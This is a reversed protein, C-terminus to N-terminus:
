NFNNKRSNNNVLFFAFVINATLLGYIVTNGISIFILTIFFASTIKNNAYIKKFLLILGILGILGVAGFWNGLEADFFVDHTGGFLITFLNSEKIYNLFISYKIYGSSETSIFNELFSDKMRFAILLICIYILISKKNMKYSFIQRFNIQKVFHYILFGGIATRSFTLLLCLITFFNILIYFSKNKTTLSSYCTDYIFFYLLVTMGLLNPNHLLGGARVNGRDVFISLLDKGTTFNFFNGWDFVYAYESFYWTNRFSVFWNFNYSILIQTSILYLLILVAFYMIVKKNLKLEPFPHRFLLILIILFRILEGPAKIATLFIGPLILFFIFITDNDVLIKKDKFVRLLIFINAILVFLKAFDVPSIVALMLFLVIFNDIKSFTIKLKM